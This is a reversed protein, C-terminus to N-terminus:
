GCKPLYPALRTQSTNPCSPALSAPRLTARMHSALGEQWSPGCEGRHLDCYIVKDLTETLDVAAKKKTGSHQTIPLITARRIHVCHLVLGLLFLGLLNPSLTGAM